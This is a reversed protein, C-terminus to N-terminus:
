AGWVWGTLCGVGVWVPLGSGNLCAGGGVWVPEVCGGLCAGGGVSAPEGVWGSLRRRGM